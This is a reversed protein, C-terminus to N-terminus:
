IQWAPTGMASGVETVSNAGRLQAIQQQQPALKAQLQGLHKLQDPSLEHGLAADILAALTDAALTVDPCRQLAIRRAAETDTESDLIARADAVPGSVQWRTAAGKHRNFRSIELGATQLRHIQMETLDGILFRDTDM